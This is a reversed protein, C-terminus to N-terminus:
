GCRFFSEEISTDCIPTECSSSSANTAKHILEYELVCKNLFTRMEDAKCQSDIINSKLLFLDVGTQGNKNQSFPDCGNSILLEAVLYSQNEIALMLATCGDNDRLEIDLKSSSFSLFLKVIHLHNSQAAKMLGNRGLYGTVAYPNVGQNLLQGVQKIKNKSVLDLFELDSTNHM